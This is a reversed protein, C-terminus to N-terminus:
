SHFGHSVAQKLYQQSMTQANQLRQKEKEEQYIYFLRDTEAQKRYMEMNDREEIDRETELRKM